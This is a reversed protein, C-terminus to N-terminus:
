GLQDTEAKSLYQLWEMHQAGVQVSRPSDVSSSTCTPRRSRAKRGARFHGHEGDDPWWFRYRDYGLPPNLTVEIVQDIKRELKRKTEEISGVDQVLSRGGQEWPVDDVVYPVIPIKGHWDYAPGDYMPTSVGAATIILRLQPYVRCDEPM